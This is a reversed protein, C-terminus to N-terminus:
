RNFAQIFDAGNKQMERVMGTSGLLKTQFNQM